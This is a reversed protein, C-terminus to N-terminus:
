HHERLLGLQPAPPATGESAAVWCRHTRAVTCTSISSPRHKLHLLGADTTDECESLNLHQLQLAKLHQL